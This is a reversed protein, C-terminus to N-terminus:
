RLVNPARLELATMEISYQSHVIFLAALLESLNLALSQIFNRENPKALYVAAM